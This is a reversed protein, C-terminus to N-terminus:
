IMKERKYEVGDRDFFSRAVDDKRTAILLVNYTGTMNVHLVIATMDSKVYAYGVGFCNKPTVWVKADENLFKFYDPLKVLKPKDDTAKVQFTYLNDGRTPSEVFCHRLRFGQAKKEPDPHPIDFSGAGKEIADVKVVSSGSADLSCALCNQYPGTSASRMSVTFGKASGVRMHAERGDHEMVFNNSANGGTEVM